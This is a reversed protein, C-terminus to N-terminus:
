LDYEMVLENIAEELPMDQLYDDLEGQFHYMNVWFEWNAETWKDGQLTCLFDEFKWSNLYYGLKQQIKFHYELIELLKMLPYNQLKNIHIFSNLALLAKTKM